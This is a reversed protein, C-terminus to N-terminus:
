DFYAAYVSAGNDLVWEGSELYAVTVTIAMKGGPNIKVPLGMTQLYEHKDTVAKVTIVGSTISAGSTNHVTLTIALATGGTQATYEYCNFVEVDAEPYWRGENECSFFLAGLACVIFIRKM